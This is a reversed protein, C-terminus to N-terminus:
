LEIVMGERAARVGVRGAAREVAAAAIARDNVGQAM